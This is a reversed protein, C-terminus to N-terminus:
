DIAWIKVAQQAMFAQYNRLNDPNWDEYECLKHLLKLNSSSYIAKKAAFSATDADRNAKASLLALNGLRSVDQELLDGFQDRWYDDEKPSKPLIHEITYSSTLATPNNPNLHNEISALLYHAKKSSQSIPLTKSAFSQQFDEDSPLRSVLQKKIEAIPQQEHIAIALRSYFKEVDNSPLNCIVQYRLCFALLWHCLKAFGAEPYAFYASLLVPYPQSMNFIDLALLCHQIQRKHKDNAIAGWLDDKHDNLAAYISSAGHLANLLAIATKKSTCTTKIKKFLSSKSASSNRSNWFCRLFRSFDEKGLNNLTASWQEEQMEIDYSNEYRSSIVSLLHNKLLDPTSLRVGRANLTEFIKYANADDSVEIVTFFLSNAIISEIFTGIESGSLNLQRIAQEYFEKAQRMRHESRKIRRKRPHSSLNALNLRYYEDNNRNLKLKYDEALLSPSKSSIYSNKIIEVREADQEDNSTRLIQLAALILLSLTTLRQQGDIITFPIKGNSKDQKQLVLYGMYHDERDKSDQEYIALIDQWLEDWQEEGWSYDRQYKPVQYYRSNGIIDSFFRNNVEFNVTSRM